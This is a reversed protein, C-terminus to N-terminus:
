ASLRQIFSQFFVKFGKFDLTALASLYENVLEEGMGISPLEGTSLYELYEQGTKTYITKQLNSAEALAQKSQADKANFSPTMPLSWCLPSFRTIMFRQFGPIAIQTSNIPATSNPPPAIDAGGWLASMRSLVSFAMKSTPLDDADKAFHEVTEIVAEFIPQNKESVIVASLDNNLIILLFNLYERKLEALQIEDDTGTVPESLGAFVRHLFPTLLSDLIGSIESKFGFIVQDQLRLFLAMEDKTSTQPILGDIWRPLQPLIHAGRVGILRSFTARAAARIEFSFNLSELAVLTAESVQGFVESLEPAPPTGSSSGGGVSAGPMWDSSGKALTGLAMIDHHIFQLAREDHSKAAALNREMDAFLPSMITQFYLVQKDMPVTSASCIAGVAEFLYLQQNFIADASGEHDESSMDDGDSNESSTDAQIVLLDSLATVITEAVNDIRNRLLKIYRYFLYWSRTKVKIMPHHVLQIFSELVSPIFQPHHEFFSGYRVCIEMFQLQTAPHSFSRIDSEVMAAMMEVLREAAANNPKGKTFLSGSRSAHDGFLFMEHLALDLDRWNLRSNPQRINEFTTRVVETVADMYLQQNTTAITQQLINLRKRLELFEAEDTQEDEEGWSSTEDYRMKAIVAKLIPLLMPAQHDAAAPNKQASKRFYTLLDSVSPIVTSCIEDYEDSLYRLCHPLFSQLLIEAKERTAADINETELAKVIDLMTMNVLRAVTEALDTDYNSSFRYESLPPSATLQSIITELNLFIIMDIKDSPKMKKSVIETFVDIAVDRVKERGGRNPDQAQSLQRFLLDLMPQNVILSIDIWSVWSGIARLCMEAVANDDGQWKALIEQWSHVIKQVDRERVLDKLTNAKEQDARSRSVLVDGIEEHVSNVVRLYFIIGPLHDPVSSQPSTYSLRMIDDFFSEWGNGYLGCFLYTMVQAIKNQIGGAEDSAPVTAEPGYHSQVYSFLTDKVFLLGQADVFGSQTANAIVELTVIRVVDPPAPQRTFISLCAPWASPDSRLQNIFALAQAQLAADSRGSSNSAIDIANLIQAEM